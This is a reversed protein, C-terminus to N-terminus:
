KSEISNSYFFVEMKTSIYVKVIFVKKLTFPKWYISKLIFIFVIQISLYKFFITCIYTCFIGGLFKYTSFMGILSKLLFYIYFKKLKTRLFGNILLNVYM